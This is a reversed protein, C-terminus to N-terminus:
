NAASAANAQLESVIAKGMTQFHERDETTWNGGIAYELLLYSEASGKYNFSIKHEYKEPNSEIKLDSIEGLDYDKKDFLESADYGLHMYYARKSKTSMCFLYYSDKEKLKIFPLFTNLIYLWLSGAGRRPPMLYTALDIEDGTHRFEDTFEKLVSATM